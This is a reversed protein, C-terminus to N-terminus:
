RMAALWHGNGRFKFGRPKSGPVVQRRVAADRGTLQDKSRKRCGRHNCDQADVHHTIFPATALANHALHVVLGSAGVRGRKFLPVTRPRPDGTAQKKRERLWRSAGFGRPKFGKGYRILTGFEEVAMGSM